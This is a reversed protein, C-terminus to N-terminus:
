GMGLIAALDDVDEQGGAMEPGFIRGQQRHAVPPEMAQRRDVLLTLADIQSM